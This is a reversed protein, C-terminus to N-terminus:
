TKHITLDNKTGLWEIELMFFSFLNKKDLWCRVPGIFSLFWKVENSMFSLTM